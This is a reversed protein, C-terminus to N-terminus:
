RGSLGSVRNPSPVRHGGFSTFYHDEDLDALLAPHEPRWKLLRRTLSSSTPNDATVAFSLWGFHDAAQEPPVSVVPLSLRHGIVEAIDRFPVGEDAAGHWRAGTSATELALRYLRAADKTHVAPWRNTGDGVFASVGTRRAIGILTPVFGHHDLSSHVTPALRVVSSRVGRRALAVAAEEAPVRRAAPAAPDPADRETGPRGPPLVLTGSTGVFPKGSGALADGIANIAVLDVAAADVHAPAHHLYALHIVGDAEAATDRLVDVDDLTGRRIEAGAERLAEASADSRALGVVEHGAARLEPVLASGIHGSAGTIFVRM